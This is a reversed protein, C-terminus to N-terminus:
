KRMDILSEGLIYSFALGVLTWYVEKDIDIGLGETIVVYLAAAIAV